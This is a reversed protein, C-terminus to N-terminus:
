RQVKDGFSLLTKWLNGGNNCESIFDNDIIAVLYYSDRITEILEYSESDFEYLNLWQSSWLSFAEESWVLFTDPDFITPQLIERCPFVGWTLATVGAEVIGVTIEEGHYNVAYLNMSEHEKVMGVLKQVNDPCVFCECYAKQYVYGGTGGWGFTKHTSPVGNVPPQSNITLFGARNLAALEKQITFSEPQLPSECWPLHPVMGEVYKAFVEFVDQYTKPDRGLMECRDDDSGLTFSYFHSLDSLEGFAPSTSDGWRGNPFEDWDDTRMVYSKPRNAWNIPRVDEKERREMTSPRWPFQRGSLQQSENNNNTDSSLTSLIVSVSRELNLTHFHIGDVGGHEEPTNLIVRAMETAIECGIRKVAEMDEKVPELREIIHGPVAIGCFNTMRIFNSYSQIPLIGPIIPCSIGFQRCTKVYNLFSNVDYFFQTMIFDAGSHIKEKLHEMESELSTSSPHGEPHGAVAIGFYDGHLKKIIKVLDIARDCEGGSVDEVDWRGKKSNPPDGRLALINHVGSSKAQQLISAIQERTMGTCTLHLLVDVGCYRQAFSSLAMSRASTAGSDGWTVDIFIPNLKSMREIRILLNDLGRETKPPFFEFSYYWGDPFNHNSKNENATTKTKITSSSSLTELIQHNSTKNHAIHERKKRRARIKEIIRTM